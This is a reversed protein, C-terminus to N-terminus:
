EDGLTEDVDGERCCSVESVLPRLPDVLLRNIFVDDVNKGPCDTTSMDRHLRYSHISRITARLHEYLLIANRWCALGRGTTPDEVNYDGLVEVGITHSNHGRCHTGPIGTHTMLWIRRDDVFYHPTSPWGKEKLYYHEMNKIQQETFGEPRQALSPCQTHHFVVLDPNFDM